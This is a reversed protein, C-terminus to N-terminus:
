GPRAVPTPAAVLEFEGRCGATVWLVQGSTGWSRNEVCPNTSMTRVLRARYNLPIACESRRAQKSECLVRTTSVPPTVPQVPPQGAAAPRSRGLQGRRVPRAPEAHERPVLRQRPGVVLHGDLRVGPQEPSRGRRRQRQHETLQVRLSRVRKPPLSRAAGDARVATGGHRVAAGARCRVVPPSMGVVPHSGVDCGGQVILPDVSRGAPRHAIEPLRLVEARARSVGARGPTGISRAATVRRVCGATTPRATLATRIGERARRAGASPRARPREPHAHRRARVGRTGRRRPGLKALLDGRVSPLLHYAKLSPEDTLQDVLELGAAPGFAMAVAVARNLEVVPSPTLEALADYLAAIREWDTEDATARRRTARPSRPRCRTPASRAAWSRRARSRPWAAGSSCSTGARRSGSRAAAGASGVAGVRARLRSAQIEM